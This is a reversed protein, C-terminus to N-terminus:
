CLELSFYAKSLKIGESSMWPMVNMMEEIEAEKEKEREEYM